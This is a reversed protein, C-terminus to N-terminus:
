TDSYKELVLVKLRVLIDLLSGLPFSLSIIISILLNKVSFVNKWAIYGVVNGGKWEEWGEGDGREGPDVGEGM